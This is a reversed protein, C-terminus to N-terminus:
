RKMFLKNAKSCVRNGTRDIEPELFWGKRHGKVVRCGGVGVHSTVHDETLTRFFVRPRRWSAGINHRSGQITPRLNDLDIGSQQAGFADLQILAERLVWSIPLFIVELTTSLLSWFRSCTIMFLQHLVLKTLCNHFKSLAAFKTAHMSTKSMVNM